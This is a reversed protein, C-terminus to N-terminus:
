HRMLMMPLAIRQTGAGPFDHSSAAAVDFQSTVASKSPTTVAAMLMKLSKKMM